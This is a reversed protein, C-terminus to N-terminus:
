ATKRDDGFLLIFPIAQGSLDVMTMKQAAMPWFQDRLVHKIGARVVMLSLAGKTAPRKPSVSSRWTM